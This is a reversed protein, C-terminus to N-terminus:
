QKLVSGNSDLQVSIQVKDKLTGTIELKTLVFSGQYTRGALAAPASFRIQVNKPDSSEFWTDWTDLSEAALLGSGTISASNSQILRDIWVPDDPSDCDLVETDNTKATRSLGKTTIGCPSTFNEPDAGDGLRILLQTAQATTPKAM